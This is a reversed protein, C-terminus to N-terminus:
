SARGHGAHGAIREALRTREGDTLGDRGRLVAVAPPEWVPLSAPDMGHAPTALVLTLTGPEVRLALEVRRLTVDRTASPSTAGELHQYTSLSVYQRGDGGHRAAVEEQTWARSRRVSRCFAAVRAWAESRDPDAVPSM